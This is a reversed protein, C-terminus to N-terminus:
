QLEVVNVGRSQGRTAYDHIHFFCVDAGADQGFIVIM